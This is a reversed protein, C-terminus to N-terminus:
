PPHAGGAGWGGLDAGSVLRRGADERWVTMSAFNRSRLLGHDQLYPLFFRFFECTHSQQAHICGPVFRYGM